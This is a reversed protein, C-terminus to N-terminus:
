LLGREKLEEIVKQSLERIERATLNDNVAIASMTIAEHLEDEPLKAIVINGGIPERTVPGAAGQLIAVGSGAAWGLAAEVKALSQPIRIPRRNSDELNQVSGESVEARKALDKQTMGAAERAQKIAKALREWDREMPLTHM